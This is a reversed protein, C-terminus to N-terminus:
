TIEPRPKQADELVMWRLVHGDRSTSMSLERSNSPGSPTLNHDVSGAVPSDANVQVAGVLNAV